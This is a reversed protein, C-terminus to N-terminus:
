IEQKSPLWWSYISFSIISLLSLASIYVMGLKCWKIIGLYVNRASSQYEDFLKMLRSILVLVAANEVAPYVCYRVYWFTALPHVISVDVALDMIIYNLALSASCDSSEILKSVGIPLM